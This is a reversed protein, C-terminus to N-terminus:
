HQWYQEEPTYKDITAQETTKPIPLQLSMCPDFKISVKQFVQVLCQLSSNMFCTNGLNVLGRKIREVSSSTLSTQQKSPPAGFSFQKAAITSFTVQRQQGFASSTSTATPKTGFYATSAASTGSQGLSPTRRTESQGFL